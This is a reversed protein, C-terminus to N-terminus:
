FPKCKTEFAFRTKDLRWPLALIPLYNEILELTGLSRPAASTHGVILARLPRGKNLQPAAPTEATCLSRSAEPNIRIVCQGLVLSYLPM